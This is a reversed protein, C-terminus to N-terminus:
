QAGEVRDGALVGLSNRIMRSAGKKLLYKTTSALQYEAAFHLATNGHKNVANFDCGHKLLLKVIKRNNASCACMLPTNGISDRCEPDLLSFGERTLEKLLANNKTEIAVFIDDYQRQSEGDNQERVQATGQSKMWIGYTDDRFLPSEEKDDGAREASDVDEPKSGSSGKRRRIRGVLKLEQSGLLSDVDGSGDEDGHYSKSSTVKVQVSQMPFAKKVFRPVPMIWSPFCMVSEVDEPLSELNPQFPGFFPRKKRKEKRLSEGEPLNSGVYTVKVKVAMEEDIVEEEGHAKSPVYVDDSEELLAMPKLEYEDELSSEFRNIASMIEDEEGRNPSPNGEPKVSPSESMM